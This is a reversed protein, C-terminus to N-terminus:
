KGLTIYGKRALQERSYFLWCEPQTPSTERQAYRSRRLNMRYSRGARLAEKYGPLTNLAKYIRDDSLTLGREYLLRRALQLITEESTPAQALFEEAFGEPLTDTTTM